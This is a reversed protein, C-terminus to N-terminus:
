SGKLAAVAARAHQRAQKLAEHTSRLDERAAQLAARTPELDKAPELGPVAAVAGSLTPPRGLTDDAIALSQNMADLSARAEADDGVKGALEDAVAQLKERATGLRDAAEIVRTQPVRLAYIRFDYLVRGADSRFAERDTYCTASITQGLQALRSAASQLEAIQTGNVGYPDPAAQLSAVLQMITAQRRAIEAEVRDRVQDTPRCPVGDTAAPTDPSSPSPEAGALAPGAFPVLTALGVVGAALARRLSPRRRTRRISHDTTTSM